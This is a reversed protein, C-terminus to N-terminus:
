AAARMLMFVTAFVRQGDGEHAVGVAAFRGEEVGGAASVFARAVIGAHGHRAHLPM